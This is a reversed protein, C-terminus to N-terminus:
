HADSDIEAVIELAMEQFSERYRDGRVMLEARIFNNSSIAGALRRRMSLWGEESMLGSQYQFYNNDFMTLNAGANVWQVALAEDSMSDLVERDIVESYTTKARQALVTQSSEFALRNYQNTVFAEARQQYQGAIAIQQAQRLELGVFVLSAVIAAMGMLEALDRWSPPRMLLDM